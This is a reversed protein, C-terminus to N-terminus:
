RPKRLWPTLFSACTLVADQCVAEASRYSPAAQLMRALEPVFYRGPRHGIVAAKPRLALQHFTAELAPLLARVDGVAVLSLLSLHEPALSSASPDIRAIVDNIQGRLVNDTTEWFLDLHGLRGM